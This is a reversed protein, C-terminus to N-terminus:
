RSPQQPLKRPSVGRRAWTLPDYTTGCDPCHALHAAGIPVEEIRCLDEYEIERQKFYGRVPGGKKSRM